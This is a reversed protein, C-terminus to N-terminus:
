FPVNDIPKFESDDQNQAPDLSYYAYWKRRESTVYDYVPQGNKVWEKIVDHYGDEVQIKPLIEGIKDFFSQVADVDEQDIRGLTKAIADVKECIKGFRLIADSMGLYGMTRVTRKALIIKLLSYGNFEGKIDYMLIDFLNEAISYYLIAEAEAVSVKQKFTAMLELWAVPTPMKQKDINALYDVGMCYCAYSYDYYNAIADFKDQLFTRPYHKIFILLSEDEHYQNYISTLKDTFYSDWHSKLMQYALMRDQKYESLLVEVIRRKDAKSAFDYRRVLALRLSSYGRKRKAFEALIKGITKHQGAALRKLDRHELVSKIVVNQNKQSSYYDLLECDTMTCALARKLTWRASGSSLALDDLQDIINKKKQSM